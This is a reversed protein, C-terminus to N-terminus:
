YVNCIIFASLFMVFASFAITPEAIGLYVENHVATMAIGIALFAVIGCAALFPLLIDSISLKHYDQWECILFLIGAVASCVILFIAEAFLLQMLPEIQQENHPQQTIITNVFVIIMIVMLATMVELARNFATIKKM